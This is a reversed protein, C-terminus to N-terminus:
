VQIFVNFISVNTFIRMVKGLSLVIIEFYKEFVQVVVAPVVFPQHAQIYKTLMLDCSAEGANKANFKMENCVQAVQRFKEVGWIPKDRLGIAAALLRHVVVDAYRRIPSTFHTYIPISLAYHYFDGFERGNSCFYTARTMPKTLM